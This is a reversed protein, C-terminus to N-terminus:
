RPDNALSEDLAPLEGGDTLCSSLTDHAAQMAAVIEPCRDAVDNVEWRDDPKGYLEPPPAAEGSKSAAPIRLYWAPTRLAREGGEGVLCIRDGLSLVDERIVPVVSRNVGLNEHAIGALEFLTSALNCPQVLCQTRGARGLGNPLRMLWPTQVLEGYLSQDILGLRGNRGLPFGRAGLVVLVTDQGLQESELLELLGGLCEDALTVQAAYVQCLGWLEDPDDTAALYRCPPKIVPPPHAEDEQAYNQRLEQPADWATGMGRSHAWLFFPERADQLFQAAAAFFQAIQTQDASECIEYTEAAGEAAGLRILEDFGRCLPHTALAPEDTLCTTVWGADSFRQALTEEARCHVPALPHRGTWWSQCLSHLDPHDVCAQDFVFGDAALRNFHPTAVWSNGYCGLFGAHLRDIVLVIINM